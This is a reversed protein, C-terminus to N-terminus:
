ATGAIQLHASFFMSLGDFLESLSYLSIYPSAYSRQGPASHFFAETGPADVVNDFPFRWFVAVPLFDQVDARYAPMGM